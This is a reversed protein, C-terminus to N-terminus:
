KKTVGQFYKNFIDREETTTFVKVVYELLDRYIVAEKEPLLRYNLDVLIYSLSISLAQVALEIHSLKQKIVDDRSLSGIMNLFEATILEQTNSVAEINKSYRGSFRRLRNEVQEDRNEQSSAHEIPPTLLAREAVKFAEDVSDQVRNLLKETGADPELSTQLFQTEASESLHTLEQAIDQLSDMFSGLSTGLRTNISELHKSLLVSHSNLFSVLEHSSNLNEQDSLSM